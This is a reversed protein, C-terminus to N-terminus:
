IRQWWIALCSGCCVRQCVLYICVCRCVHPLSTSKFFQMYINYVLLVLSHSVESPKKGLRDMVVSKAAKLAAEVIGEATRAGTTVVLLCSTQLHLLMPTPPSFSSHLSFSPPPLSLFPFPLPHTCLPSWFPAFPRTPDVNYMYMTDSPFDLLCIFLLTFYDVLGLQM